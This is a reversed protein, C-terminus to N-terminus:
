ARWRNERDALSADYSGRVRDWVVGHDAVSGALRRQHVITHHHGCLLAANGLDSSGGDAWHVLHHADCSLAPATCAPFTCGGDRLWLRKTQAPTFLRKQRGWDIVETETGLVLPILSADCALRRVTEPALLTPSDTGGITSGAGRLGSALVDYDVSVFLQAKATTPVSEGSSMARRVVEILADGRRQEAPRLDREGEIPRPASLPGVAAELIAKGEVDLTLRYEFVGVGADMPQSLAVFRKALDQESQLEGDLGYRAVLSPRVMRCGRPGHERAMEILGALVHREAGEALRPRLRDAETIVVAASRVPLMGSEVALRVPENTAKAFAAALAVVQTLGGGRLSPAHHLAWQATTAARPGTSTEGRAIAEGVVAVRAADCAQGLADIEELVPGLEAGRAQWLVDGLGRIGNLAETIARRRDKLGLGPPGADGPVGSTGQNGEM